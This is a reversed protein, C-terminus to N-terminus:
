DWHIRGSNHKEKRKNQNGKLSVILFCESVHLSAIRYFINLKYLYTWEFAMKCAKVRRYKEAFTLMYIYVRIRPHSKVDTFWTWITKIWLMNSWKFRVQIKFFRNFILTELGMKQRPFQTDLCLPIFRDLNVYSVIKVRFKKVTEGHYFLKRPLCKM